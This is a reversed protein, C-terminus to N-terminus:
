HVKGGDPLPPFEEAEAVEKPVAVGLKKMLAATQAKAEEVIAPPAKDNAMQSAEAVIKALMGFVEPTMQTATHAVAYALMLLAVCGERTMAKGGLGAKHLAVLFDPALAAGEKVSKVLDSVLATRESENM